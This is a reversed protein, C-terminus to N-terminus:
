RQDSPLVDVKALSESHNNLCSSNFSRKRAIQSENPEKPTPYGKAVDKVELNRKDQAGNERSDLLNSKKRPWSSEM